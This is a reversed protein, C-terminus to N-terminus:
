LGGSVTSCVPCPLCAPLLARRHPSPLLASPFCPQLPRLVFCLRERVCGRRVQYLKGGAAVELATSAAPDAVRALKAVVGKVRSRDFNREPDSYRFDIAACPCAPFPWPWADAASPWRPARCCRLGACM